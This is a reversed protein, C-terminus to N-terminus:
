QLVEPRRSGVISTLSLGSCTIWSKTSRGDRATQQTLAGSVQGDDVGMLLEVEQRWTRKEKQAWDKLAGSDIFETVLYPRGEFEETDHVKLIHPHNLSSAMKAERQSRRRAAAALERLSRALWRRDPGSRGGLM